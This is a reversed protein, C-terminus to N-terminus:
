QTVTIMRPLEPVPDPINTPILANRLEPYAREVDTVPMFQFDGACRQATNGDLAVTFRMMYLRRQRCYVVPLRVGDREFYSEGKWTPSIHLEFGLKECLESVSILTEKMTSVTKADVFLTGSKDLGNETTGRVCMFLGGATMQQKRKVGDYGIVNQRRKILNQIFQQLEEGLAHFNAGSDVLGDIQIEGHGM